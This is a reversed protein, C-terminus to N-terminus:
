AEGKANGHEYCVWNRPPATPSALGIRREVVASLAIMRLVEDLQRCILKTSQGRWDGISPSCISGNQYWWSVGDPQYISRRGSPESNGGKSTRVEFSRSTFLNADKALDPRLTQPWDAVGVGFDPIM